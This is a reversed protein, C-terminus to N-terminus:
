QPPSDDNSGPPPRRSSDETSPPVLILRLYIPRLEQLLEVLPVQLPNMNANNPWIPSPEFMHRYMLDMETPPARDNNKSLHEIFLTSLWAAQAALTHFM